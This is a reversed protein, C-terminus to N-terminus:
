FMEMVRGWFGTGVEGMERLSGLGLCGSNQKRDSHAQRDWAHWILLDRLVCAKQSQSREWLMLNGLNMSSTAPTPKRGQIVSYGKTGMKNIWKESLPCKPQKM